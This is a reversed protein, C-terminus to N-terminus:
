KGGGVGPRVRRDPRPRRAPEDRSLSRDGLQRGSAGLAARIGMERMRMVAMSEALVYTALITLMAAIRAWRESCWRVSVSRLAWKSPSAAKSRSSHGPAVSADVQTIASMIERRAADADGAARFTLSRHTDDTGPKRWGPFHITLPERM